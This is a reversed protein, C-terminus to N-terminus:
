IPCKNYPYRFALLCSSLPTSQREPYSMCSNSHLRNLANWHWVTSQQAQTARSLVDSDTAFYIPTDITDFNYIGRCHNCISSTTGPLLTYLLQSCVFRLTGRALFGIRQFLTCCGNLAGEDDHRYYIGSICAQALGTLWMLDLREWTKALLSVSFYSSKKQSM